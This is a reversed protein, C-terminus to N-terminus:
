ELNMSEDLQYVHRYIQTKIEIFEGPMIKDPFSMLLMKIKSKDAAYPPQWYNSECVSFGLRDYFTIRRRTSENTPKDVELIIRTPKAELIQKVVKSGIGKGRFSEAIAFHEMFIFDSLNWISILGILEQDDMIENLTFHPHHLLEKMENWERREEYPFSGIYIQQLDENLERLNSVPIIKIM